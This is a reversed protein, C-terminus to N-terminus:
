RQTLEGPRPISLLDLPSRLDSLNKKAVHLYRMTTGVHGHGLLQQIQAISAGAELMHTAFSHRLTHIGQGRTLRARKKVTTWIRQASAVPMPKEGSKDSFLWLKPRYLRWYARLEQLLTPSALTYRDKGGKGQEVRIMMRESQIDKLKLHVLEKVRLGTAYATILLARHKLNTAASFLRVVEERSLVEPLRGPKKRRVKLEFGKRALVERYLFTLAAAAQSCTSSSLKQETLMHHLYSRLEELDLQDPSKRYHKALRHVARLYVEETCPSFQRLQMERIMKARLPTM